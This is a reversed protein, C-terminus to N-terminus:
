LTLEVAVFSRGFGGYLIGDEIAVGGTLGPFRAESRTGGSESDLFRLLPTGDRQRVVIWFSVGDFGLSTIELDGARNQQRWRPAGDALRLAFLRYGVPAGRQLTTECIGFILQERGIVPRGIASIWEAAEFGDGIAWRSDWLPAGSRDTAQLIPAHGSAVDEVDVKMGSPAWVALPDFDPGPDHDRHHHVDIALDLFQGDPTRCSVVVLAGRRSLLPIGHESELRLSGRRPLFRALGKRPVFVRSWLLKGTERDVEYLTDGRTFFVSGDIVLPEGVIPDRGGPRFAWREEGASKGAAVGM